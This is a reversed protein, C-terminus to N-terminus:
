EISPNPLQLASSGDPLLADFCRTCDPCFLHPRIVHTNCLVLQLPADSCHPCSERMLGTPIVDEAQLCAGVVTGDVVSRPDLEVLVLPPMDGTRMVRHASQSTVTDRPFEMAM